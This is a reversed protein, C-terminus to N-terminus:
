KEQNLLWSKVKLGLAFGGLGRQAVVRHCPTVILWPNKGCASGVARVAKPTGIKQAVESYTCVSGHPIQRLYEWVKNQFSTGRPYFTLNWKKIKKGSFYDNLKSVLLQIAQPFKQTKKKKNSQSSRMKSIAYLKNEKLQIKLLGVPSSYFYTNNEKDMM